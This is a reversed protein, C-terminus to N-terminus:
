QLSTCGILHSKLIDIILLENIKTYMSLQLIKNDLM